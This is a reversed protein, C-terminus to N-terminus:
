ACSNLVDDVSEGSGLGWLSGKGRDTKGVFVQRLRTREGDHEMRTTRRDGQDSHHGERNGQGGHRGGGELEHNTVRFAIVNIKDVGAGVSQGVKDRGRSTQDLGVGHEANGALVAEQNRRTLLEGLRGDHDDVRVIAADNTAEIVTRKSGKM